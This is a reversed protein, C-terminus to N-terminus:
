EFAIGMDRLMQGVADAMERERYSPNDVAVLTCFRDILRSRNIRDMAASM